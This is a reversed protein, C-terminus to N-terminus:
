RPAVYEAPLRWEASVPRLQEDLQVHDWYVRLVDNIAAPPADWNLSPVTVIQEEVELAALQEAILALKADRQERSIAGDEYNDAVRQRRELLAAHQEDSAEGLQVQHPPRFREAEVRIWPMITAVTATIKGHAEAGQTHGRNCYFQGRVVNPTMTQGCHCRLLGTLPSRIGAGRRGTPGRPRLLEPAEREVIRTLAAASWRSGGNPAPVNRLELARCAALVSGEARVVELVAELPQEPDRVVVIRGQDDRALTHGFPANGLFDGRARRRALAAASRQKVMKLEYESFTSVLMTHLWKSPNGDDTLDGERSTVIRVGHDKAAKLFKGTMVVSRLLRDLGYAYITSIEDREIATLLAAYASRQATKEEDASRAWDVFWRMDGNHGERAALERIAQEQVSRSVDGPSGADASSRRVYAAPTM